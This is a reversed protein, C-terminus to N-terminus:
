KRLREARIRAIRADEWKERDANMEEFSRYKRVGRPLDRPGALASGMECVFRMRAGISPDWPATSPEPIDEVRRYKYVPM